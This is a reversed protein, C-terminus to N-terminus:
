YTVLTGAETSYPTEITVFYLGPKLDSINLLYDNTSIVEEIVAKGAQTYVILKANCACNTKIHVKGSAPNPFLKLGWETKFAGIGTHVVAIAFNLVDQLPKGDTAVADGNSYSFCISDIGSLDDEFAIDIFRPSKGLKVSSITLEKGGAMLKFGKQSVTDLNKNLRINLNNGELSYFQALTPPSIISRVKVDYFPPVLKGNIGKLQTGNYTLTITQTNIVNKDLTIVVSDGSIQEINTINFPLSDVAVTLQDITTGFPEVMSSFVMTVKNGQVNTIACQM